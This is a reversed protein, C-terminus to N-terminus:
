VTNDTLIVTEPNTTVRGPPLNFTTAIAPPFHTGQAALTKITFRRQLALLEEPNLDQCIEALSYQSTVVFIAPRIKLMGGKVEANFVYHDAWIKLYYTIWEGHKPSVDDLVAVEEKQYGDWWKNMAKTFFGPWTERCYRSKGSGSPGMIWYNQLTSRDSPKDGYAARIYEWTRIQQPPLNFFDGKKALLWTAEMKEKARKAKEM